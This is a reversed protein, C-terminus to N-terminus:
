GIQLSESEGAIGLDAEFHNLHCDYEVAELPGSQGAIRLARVQTRKSEM